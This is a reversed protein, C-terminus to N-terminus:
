ERDKGPEGKVTKPPSDKDTLVIHFKTFFADSRTIPTASFKSYVDARYGALLWDIALMPTLLVAIFLLSAATCVATCVAIMKCLDILDDIDM